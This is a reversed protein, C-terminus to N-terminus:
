RNAVLRESFLPRRVSAHEDTRTSTPRIPSAFRPVGASGEEWAKYGATFCPYPSPGDDVESPTLQWALRMEERERAIRQELTETKKTM